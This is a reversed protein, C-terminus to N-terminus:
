FDQFRIPQSRKPTYRLFLTEWLYLVQAAVCWIIYIKIVSCIWHFNNILNKKLNLFGKKQGMEGLKQPLSLKEFFGGARDHVVHYPNRAGHWSKSFGLLGIGLFFFVWVFLMIFPHVSSLIFFPHVKNWLAMGAVLPNWCTFSCYIPM